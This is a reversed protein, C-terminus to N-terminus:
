EAQFAADRSEVIGQQVHRETVHDDVLGFDVALYGLQQFRLNNGTELKRTSTVLKSVHTTVQLSAHCHTRGPDIIETRHTGGGALNVMSALGVV